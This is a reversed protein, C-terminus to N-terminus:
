CFGHPYPTKFKLKMKFMKRLVASIFLVADAERQGENARAGAKM